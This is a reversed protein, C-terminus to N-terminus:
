KRLRRKSTKANTHTRQGRVPLGRIRRLGSYCKMDILNKLAFVQDKKLENPRGMNMFFSDEPPLEKTEKYKKAYKDYTNRHFTIRVNKKM